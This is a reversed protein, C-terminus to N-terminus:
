FLWSTTQLIENLPKKTRLWFTFSKAFKSQQGNQSGRVARRPGKQLPRRYNSWIGCGFQWAGDYNGQMRLSQVSLCVDEPNTSVINCCWTTYIVFCTIYKSKLLIVETSSTTYLFSHRQQTSAVRRNHRGSSGEQRRSWHGRGSPRFRVVPNYHHTARQPVELVGEPYRLRRPHWAGRRTQARRKWSPVKGLVRLFRINCQWTLKETNAFTCLCGSTRDHTIDSEPFPCKALKVLKM